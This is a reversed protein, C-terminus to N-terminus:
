THSTHEQTIILVAESNMEQELQQSDDEVHIDELAINGTPVRFFSVKVLLALFALVWLSSFVVWYFYTWEIDM